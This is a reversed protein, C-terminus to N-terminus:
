FHILHRWVFLVLFRIRCESSFVFRAHYKQRLWLFQVHWRLLRREIEDSAPFCADVVSVQTVVVRSLSLERSLLWSILFLHRAKPFLFIMLKWYRLLHWCRRHDLEALFWGLHLIIFFATVGKKRTLGHRTRLPPKAELTSLAWPRYKRVTGVSKIEGRTGCHYIRLLVCDLQEILLLLHLFQFCRESRLLGRRTFLM